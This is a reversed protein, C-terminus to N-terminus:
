NGNAIVKTFKTSYNIFAFFGYVSNIDIRPSLNFCERGKKSDSSRFHPCDREVWFGSGYEFERLLSFFINFKLTKTNQM